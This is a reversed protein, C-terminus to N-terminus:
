PVEPYPENWQHYPFEMCYLWEYAGQPLDNNFHIKVTMWYHEQPHIQIIDDGFFIETGDPGFFHITGYETISNLDQDFIEPAAIHIPITGTNHIDFYVVYDISPYGNWIHIFLRGLNNDGWPIIEATVSSFDKDAPESDWTGELSWEAGIYGTEVDIDLHLYDYWLAYAAGTGALALVSICFIAGIKATKM